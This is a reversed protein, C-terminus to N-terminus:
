AGPRRRLGHRAREHRPPLRLQARPRRRGVDEARKVIDHWVERKSDVMLSAIVAHNPYLRKVEAIERLNVEIPRDSILEINNFGMM